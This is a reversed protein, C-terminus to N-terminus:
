ITKRAIFLHSFAETRQETLQWNQKDPWPASLEHGSFSARVARADDFPLIDLLERQIIRKV